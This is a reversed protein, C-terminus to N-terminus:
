KVTKRNNSDMLFLKKEIDKVTKIDEKYVEIKHQYYSPLYKYCDHNNIFEIEKALLYKAELINNESISKKILDVILYLYENNSNSSVIKNLNKEKYLDMLSANDELLNFKNLEHFALVEVFDVPNNQCREMIPNLHKMAVNIDNESLAIKGLLFNYYKEDLASLLTPNITMLYEKLSPLEDSILLELIHNKNLSYNNSTSFNLFDEITIELRECLLLVFSLSPMKSHGNELKTINTRDCIGNALEEQSLGRKERLRKISAGIDISALLDARKM